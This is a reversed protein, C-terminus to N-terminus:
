DLKIKKQNENENDDEMDDHKRSEKMKLTDDSIFYIYKKM